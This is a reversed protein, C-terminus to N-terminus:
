IDRQLKRNLSRLEEKEKKNKQKEDELQRKLSHCLKCRTSPQSPQLAEGKRKGMKQALISHLAANKAAAIQYNNQKKAAGVEGLKRRLGDQEENEGEDSSEVEVRSEM